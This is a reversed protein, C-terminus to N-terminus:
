NPVGLLSTEPPLFRTAGHHSFCLPSALRRCSVPDPEAPAQWPRTETGEAALGSCWLPWGSPVSMALDTREFPDRPLATFATRFLPAHAQPWPFRSLLAPLPSHGVSFGRWRSTPVPTLATSFPQPPVPTAPESKFWSHIAISNVLFVLNQSGSQHQFIIAEVTASSPKLHKGHSTWTSTDLIVAWLEWRSLDPTTM